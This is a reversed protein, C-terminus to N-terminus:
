KAEAPALYLQCNRNFHHEVWRKTKDKSERRFESYGVIVEQGKHMSEFSSARTIEDPYVKIEFDTEKTEGYKDAYAVAVCMLTDSGNGNSWNVTAIGKLRGVVYLGSKM